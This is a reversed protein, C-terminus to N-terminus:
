MDTQRDTQRKIQRDLYQERETKRNSQREIYAYTFPSTDTETLTDTERDKRRNTENDAQTERGGQIDTLTNTETQSSAKHKNGQTDIRRHRKKAMQEHALPLDDCATYVHSIM